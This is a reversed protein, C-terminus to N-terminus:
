DAADWAADGVDYAKRSMKMILSRRQKDSHITDPPFDSLFM